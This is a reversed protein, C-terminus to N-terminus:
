RHHKRLGRRIVRGKKSGLSTEGCSGDGLSEHAGPGPLALLFRPNGVSFIYPHGNELQSSACVKLRDAVWKCM